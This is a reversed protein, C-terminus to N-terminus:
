REKVREETSGPIPLAPHLSKCHATSPGGKYTPHLTESRQIGGSFTLPLWDLTEFMPVKLAPSLLSHTPQICGLPTPHPSHCVASCTDWRLPSSNNDPSSASGSRGSSRSQSLFGPLLMQGALAWITVPSRDLGQMTCGPSQPEPHPPSKGLTVYCTRTLAM